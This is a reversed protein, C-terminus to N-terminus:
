DTPAIRSDDVGGDAPEARGAPRGQSAIVKDDLRDGAQHAQGALSVPLGKARADRHEVHHGPQVGRDADQGRQMVPGARATTLM